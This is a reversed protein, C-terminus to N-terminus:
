YVGFLAKVEDIHEEFDYEPAMIATGNFAVGDKYYVCCSGGWNSNNEISYKVAILKKGDENYIVKSSYNKASVGLSSYVQKNVYAEAAKKAEGNGLGFWGLTNGVYIIMVIAVIVPILKSILNKSM